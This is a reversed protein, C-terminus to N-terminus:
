QWSLSPLLLLSAAGSGSWNLDTCTIDMLLGEQAAQDSGWAALWDEVTAGEALELAAPGDVNALMSALNAFNNSKGDAADAYIADMYASPACFTTTAGQIMMPLGGWVESFNGYTVGM